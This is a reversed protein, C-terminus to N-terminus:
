STAPGKALAYAVVEDLTMARGEEWAAAFASDGLAERAAAARSDCQDREKPSLPSGIEERLTEAAGWLRAAKRMGDGTDRSAEQAEVPVTMAATDAAILAAFGELSYAIDVKGGLARSIALSEPFLTRAADYDGQAYAVAGLNNLNMAQWARNGTERNIVLAEEYLAHAAVYDGQDKTVDGLSNLSDAIGDRVGLERRIALSQEHFTRASAFDGQRLAIAGLNNLNIAQWARNGLERNIVLAEEYLAHAAVYDGQDGAVNALNNLSTAIGGRDGLERKIALSEEWVTRATGYNSQHYALIGLNILSSAIGLRDGIERRIALSKELWTRATGYDGQNRAVTGLAGLSNAVGSKDGLRQEITLSEEMLARASAFDGQSGALSGAGQLAKARELTPASADARSLAKALYECGLSLYGRVEWFRSLAATLWLGVQASAQDTESWEIAACLNDHDIQLCNLWLAQGPGSLEPVAQKLYEVFYDRHRRRVTSDEGREQLKEQSYERITELLTFRLGVETDSVQILSSDRLLTLWDLTEAESLACVAEAAKLTWGGRFVSLGALFSRAAEPLLTYSWDLTARLTKQRSAADRRRTALFDLRNAQVQELIRAPTLLAVRVAALEITLPLGELYDCLQSVVEANRETLQFDPLAAQARDVFLAISPVGLLVELTQEGASTPLPALHFEREGEIHLRQRSTVLVKVSAVQALLDHVRLAGEGVLQEFNDLVLLTHPRAELASALQALADQNPVPVVGLSRLIVEFLR